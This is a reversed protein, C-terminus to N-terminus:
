AMGACDQRSAASTAVPKNLITRWPWCIPRLAADRSARIGALALSGLTLLDRREMDDGAPLFEQTNLKAL